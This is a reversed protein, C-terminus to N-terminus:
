LEHLWLTSHLEKSVYRSMPYLESIMLLIIPHITPKNVAMMTAITTPTTITKHQTHQQQQLHEIQEEQHQQLQNTQEQQVCCLKKGAHQRIFDEVPGVDFVASKFTCTLSVVVPVDAVDMWSTGNNTPVECVQRTALPSTTTCSIGLGFTPSPSFSAYALFFLVFLTWNSKQQM